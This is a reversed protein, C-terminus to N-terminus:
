EMYGLDALRQEIDGVSREAATSRYSDAVEGWAEIEDTAAAVSLVNGDAAADLPVDLCSAVTPAVDYISAREPVAGDYGTLNTVLIGVPKHNKHQYRRFPGLLTGSVDYRYDRPVLVIDPALAVNAGQYVDERRKVSEFVRNGEPDTVTRLDGMLTNRFEEYRGPPIRGSPEEGEVNIHVGLSNFFLQYADSREWDVTRNQAALLVEDPLLREVVGAVGFTTLARHIERPTVGVVSLANVGYEMLRNLASSAGKTDGQGRLGAKRGELYETEGVTTQCYGNEALWSNVYFTWDYDGMGHDSVVFVAANDDALAVIDSVYSDVAHLVDRIQRRDNLDHFVSDTVQFQVALLDWDYREDLLRAMDRRSRAVDLYNEVADDAANYEPYIRYEGYEAEFDARLEPPSFAADEPALYGPVVAGHELKSAPHTVPFNVVLATRGYADAVEWLYPARVDRRDVLSKEYGEGTFFDFVGHEGPNRGTLLSPWACPTWPPITSELDSSTGDERLSRLTSLTGDDIWEGVEAFGIGDLGILVVQQSGDM